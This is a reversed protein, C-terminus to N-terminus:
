FETQQLLVPEVSEWRRGDKDVGLLVIRKRHDISYGKIRGVTGKKCKCFVNDTALNQVRYVIIAKDGEDLKSPARIQQELASLRRQINALLATEEDLKKQEESM